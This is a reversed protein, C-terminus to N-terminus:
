RNVRSSSASKVLAIARTKENDSKDPRAPRSAFQKYGRVTYTDNVVYNRTDVELLFAVDPQLEDIIDQIEASCITIDVNNAAAKVNLALFRLKETM